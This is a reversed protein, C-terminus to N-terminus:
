IDFFLLLGLVSGQHVRNCVTMWSPGRGKICIRQRKNQLWKGIVALLKSGIAHKKLKKFLRHHPVKDFAKALDLFVVDVSLGEDVNNIV